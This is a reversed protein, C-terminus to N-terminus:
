NNSFFEKDNMEVGFKHLYYREKWGEKGLQVPDELNEEQTSKASIGLSKEESAKLKKAPRTQENEEEEKGSKVDDQAILAAKLLEAARKNQDSRRSADESSRRVADELNRKKRREQAEEKEMRTRLINDELKGVEVFLEEVRDPYLNGSDTLWGTM